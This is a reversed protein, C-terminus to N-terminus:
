RLSYVIEVLYFTLALLGVLILGAVLPWLLPVTVAVLTTRGPRRLVRAAIRVLNLWWLVLALASFVVATRLTDTCLPLGRGWGSTWREYLFRGVLFALPLLAGALLSLPACAYYSMAVARNQLALPARRPHFLYSPVGTLAALALFTGVEIPVALWEVTKIPGFPEDTGLMYALKGALIAVYALVVNVWRFRQADGYSVPRSAEACFQRNRFTVLWATRWYARIRGIQRRHLWPIQSQTTRLLALDHGCESCRPSTSGRLDYGCQPCLIGEPLAPLAAPPAPDAPVEPSRANM